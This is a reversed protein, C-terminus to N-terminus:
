YSSGKTIQGLQEQLWREAGFLKAREQLEELVLEATTEGTTLKALSMPLNHLFDTLRLIEKCKDERSLQRIELLLIFCLEYLHHPLIM